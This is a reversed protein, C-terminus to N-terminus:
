LMIASHMLGGGIVHTKLFKEKSIFYNFMDALNSTGDDKILSVHM